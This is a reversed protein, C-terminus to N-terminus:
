RIVDVGMYPRLAEPVIVSGDRQQYNELIAVVTRGIALGSGNLTHVFETGRKERKRFRINARRAQFDEFNSCSSIERYRKQGPLWVEIDYTKASSFGLDGTCLVIVRYHLGLRQLVEEADKTLSELEEYSDEPKVFKVLEVKNFQHQRILGRVDKGHSGAEKRFCPTYSVYYIPLDDESLIENKHLNTVPVEATPILYYEPEETKFLDEEFKPLQGTGIMSDRNVLLPPFVEIYGKSIHLDLMFNILARELRAGVGKMVAFRSGAIKGAREFDIIGLIEGIDWHNLPEFDFEPPVGWRRIEVNETEDKGVPVTNHPLNPIYLLFSQVKDEIIRLKSELDNIEDGLQRMESILKELEPSDPKSKKLKAIEQSVANRIARKNEIERLFKLREEEMSLFSDFDINYGRKKLAEKIKEPNERVFKIDLM